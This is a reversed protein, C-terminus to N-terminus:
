SSFVVFMQLTVWLIHACTPVFSATIRCMPFVHVAIQAQLEIGCCSLDCPTGGTRLVKDAFM